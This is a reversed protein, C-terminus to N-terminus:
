ALTLKCSLENWALIPNLSTCVLKMGLGSHSQSHHMPSTGLGSHSQSQYVNAENGPWFTFLVLKSCIYAIHLRTGLGNGAGTKSRKCYACVSPSPRPSLSKQNACSVPVNVPNHDM